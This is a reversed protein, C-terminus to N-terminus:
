PSVTFGMGSSWTGDTTSYTLVWWTYSGAPLNTTPTVSCTTGNCSAQASTYWQYVVMGTPGNVQLLYWTSGSVENWTYTPNPTPSISGTPSVQTAPGLVGPINTSFNMGTSWLGDGASNNTLVWWTFAGGGLTTSPTVSCTSGNCGAQASTYWQYIVTGSPGNVQLLYWTAGTVQDWTYTPNYNTAINGSPTSPTAAGPKTVITTNFNMGASWLGDGFSNNTLVWWTYAGGGLTTTPTVSCISGNCNAQASTYWQYIVNGNSGNVQLLYWTSDTVQNLTYTPTNTSITGTPSAPTAPGPTATNAKVHLWGQITQSYAGPDPDVNWNTVHLSRSGNSSSNQELINITGTGTNDLNISTIIAAHGSSNQASANETLIDGPVMSSTGNSHFVISSPPSNAIQNGNGAWPAIGWEQYLFRMVLEVCEFEFEGYAGSFFRVLHDQTTVKYPLPGCAPVNHWSSGLLFSHVGTAPFYNNDNCTGSWWSPIGVDIPAALSTVGHTSNLYASGLDIATDPLSGITPNTSSFSSSATVWQNVNPLKSDWTIIFSWLRNNHEVEWEISRIPLNGAFTALTMEIEISPTIENWFIGTPGTSVTRDTKSSEINWIAQRYKDIGGSHYAPRGVGSSAGPATATINVIGYGDLQNLQAYVVAQSARNDEVVNYALTTPSCFSIQESTLTIRVADTSCSLSPAPAGSENMEPQTTNTAVQQAHAVEANDGYPVYLVIGLLMIFNFFGRFRPSLNRNKM